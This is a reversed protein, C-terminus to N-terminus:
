VPLIIQSKRFTLDSREPLEVHHLVDPTFELKKILVGKTRAADGKRRALMQLPGPSVLVQCVRCRRDKEERGSAGDRCDSLAPSASLQHRQLM